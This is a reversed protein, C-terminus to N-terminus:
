RWILLQAEEVISTATRAAYSESASAKFIESAVNMAAFAEKRRDEKSEARSANALHTIAKAILVYNETTTM